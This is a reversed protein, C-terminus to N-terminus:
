RTPWNRSALFFSASPVVRSRFVSILPPNANIASTGQSETLPKWKGFESM